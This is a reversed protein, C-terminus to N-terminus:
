ELEQPRNSLQLNLVGFFILCKSIITESLCWATFNNALLTGFYKSVVAKTLHQLM